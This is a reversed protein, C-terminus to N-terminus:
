LRRTSRGATPRPRGPGVDDMLIILINPADSSLHKLEVRNRYISDKMTLGPTSASPTPPFPLVEQASALSVACLALMCLLGSVVLFQRGARMSRM